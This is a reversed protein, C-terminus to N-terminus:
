LKYSKISLTLQPKSTDSVTTVLHLFSFSGSPPTADAEGLSTDLEPTDTSDILISDLHLEFDAIAQGLFSYDGCCAQLPFHTLTSVKGMFGPYINSHAIFCKVSWTGTFEVVQYRIVVGSDGPKFGM